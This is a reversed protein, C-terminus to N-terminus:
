IGRSLKREALYFAEYIIVGMISMAVIGAFMRKYELLSWSHMIFYGLGSSGAMSEAIFLIAVATATTVRLSTFLAPLTAPLVVNTFLQVRNAGFARVSSIASDPISKAADRMSVVMQFFVAISIIVVKGEGGLGFFVFIVPLFVIKPIPYLIYLVPELIRDARRSRGLMLGMPAGLVTGILMSLLIRWLSTAFEPLIAPANDVLVPITAEPTPFAPSAVLAGLLWWLALVALTGWIYGFARNM